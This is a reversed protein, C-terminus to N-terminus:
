LSVISADSHNFTSIDVSGQKGKAVTDVGEM